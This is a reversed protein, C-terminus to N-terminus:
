QYVNAARHYVPRALCSQLKALKLVSMDRHKALKRNCCCPSKSNCFVGAEGFAAGGRFLSIAM